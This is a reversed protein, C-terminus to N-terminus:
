YAHFCTNSYNCHNYNNNNILIKVSINFHRCRHSSLVCARCRFFYFYHRLLGDSRANVNVSSAEEENPKRTFFIWDNLSAFFIFLYFRNTEVSWPTTFFFHENIILPHHNAIPKWWEHPDDSWFIKKIQKSNKNKWNLKHNLYWM